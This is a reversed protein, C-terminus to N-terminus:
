IEGRKAMERYYEATKFDDFLNEIINKKEIDLLEEWLSDIDYCIEVKTGDELTKYACLNEGSFSPREYLFWDIWGMQEENFISEFFVHIIKYYDDTFNTVDLGGKYLLSQKKDILQLTLIVKEFAEKSM